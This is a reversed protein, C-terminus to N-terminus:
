QLPIAGRELTKESRCAAQADLFLAAADDGRRIAAGIYGLSAPSGTVPGADAPVQPKPALERELEAPCVLRTETRTTM